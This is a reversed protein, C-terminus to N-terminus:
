VVVTFGVGTPIPFVNAYQLIVLEYPQLSFNCVIEMKCIAWILLM